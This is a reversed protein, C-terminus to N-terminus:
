QCDCQSGSKIYPTLFTADSLGVPGHFPAIFKSCRELLGSKVAATHYVADSLSTSAIYTGAILDCTNDRPDCRPPHGSSNVVDPSTINYIYATFVLGNPPYRVDVYAPAVVGPDSACSQSIGYAGPDAHICGGGFLHFTATGSVDTLLNLVNGPCLSIMGVSDPFRITLNAGQVPIGAADKIVIQNTGIPNGPYQAGPSLTLQDPFVSMAQDPTGAIAESFAAACVVLQATLIVIRLCGM